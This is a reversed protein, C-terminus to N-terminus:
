NYSSCQFNNVFDNWKVNFKEIAKTKADGELASYKLSNLALQKLLRLDSSKSAVGMFAVYFDDSLPDAEWAGPDDSSIVVPLGHAFFSALPHNRVDQVLSLVANSIVNIELGIDRILVEKILLPHKPLAYAHGIRKAGLLIADILNEDTSTGYWDTEGAHFFYTLEGAAATLQPVFDLLPKGIDEQGVLDFGAFFDLVEAKVRKANQLYLSLANTDVNRPPAYIVKAGIFDPHDRVFRNAIKKYAKATVVPDYTTGDLEYLPPLITRVEVYMINDERFRKLVDYFYQEWVPRYTVMPFITNFYNMFATWTNKICPYVHAPDDVVMTFHKRLEADFKRVNNSMRRVDRMPKWNCNADPVKNSFKLLVKNNDFCVYLGDMYTVNLLYDPGLLGVDHLHLAAGKPIDKIIRYVKSNRIGDKYKFFHYSFNFYEPHEFAYDLEEYKHKMLCNNVKTEQQTLNINGGLTLKDEDHLIQARKTRYYSSCETPYKYVLLITILTLARM